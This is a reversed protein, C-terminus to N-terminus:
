TQWSNSIYDQFNLYTGNVTLLEIKGEAFSSGNYYNVIQVYEDIVSDAALDARRYVYVDNGYHTIGLQSVNTVGNIILHDYDGQSDYIFDVGDYGFTFLYTDNDEGGYLTDVGAGGSMVDQGIGGYGDGYILDNGAGGYITDNNNEGVITDDGALGALLDNGDYGFITDNGDGGYVTDNGYGADIYDNGAAGDITDDGAYGWITDAGSSGNIYESSNTGYYTTM